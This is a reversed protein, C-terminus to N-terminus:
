EYLVNITGADFADTGNITTIRVRDLAGSLAVSGASSWGTSNVNTFALNGNSVWTNGTLNTLIVSGSFINGASSISFIGFGSTILNSNATSGWFQSTYGSTTFSGSGIQIQNFSTGNTSVGNFMVTVRRIGAPIGTFDIATGSTSNQASLTNIIGVTGTQSGSITTPM